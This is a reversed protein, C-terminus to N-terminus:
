AATVIDYFNNLHMNLCTLLPSACVCVCVSVNMLSMEVTFRGVVTVARQWLSQFLMFKDACYYDRILYHSMSFGFNGPYLEQEIIIHPALWGTDCISHFFTFVTVTPFIILDGYQDWSNCGRLARTTDCPLIYSQVIFWFRSSNVRHKLHLDLKWTATHVCLLM